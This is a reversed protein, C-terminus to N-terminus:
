PRAGPIPLKTSKGIVVPQKPRQKGLFKQDMWQIFDTHLYNDVDDADDYDADWICDGDEDVICYINGNEESIEWDINWQDIAALVALRQVQTLSVNSVSIFAGRWDFRTTM